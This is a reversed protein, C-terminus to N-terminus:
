AVYCSERLECAVREIAEPGLGPYMPLSLIRSKVKETM